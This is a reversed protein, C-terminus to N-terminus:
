PKIQMEGESTFPVTMPALSTTYLRVKGKLRYKLKDTNQLGIVGRLIDLASSYVQISLTETGFAPIKKKNNSVGVAFRKDNVELECDIGKVTIDFDNTNFVRLEIQLVSELAKLEIPRIDVINIKPPELRKGIGACGCLCSVLLLIILPATCISLDFKM